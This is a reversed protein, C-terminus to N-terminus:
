LADGSQTRVGPFSTCPTPFDTLYWRQGTARGARHRCCSSHQVQGKASGGGHRAGDEEEGPLELRHWLKHNCGVVYTRPYASGKQPAPLPVAHQGAAAHPSALGARASVTFGQLSCGQKPTPKQAWCSSSSSIRTEPQPSCYSFRVPFLQYSSVLIILLCTNIKDAHSFM